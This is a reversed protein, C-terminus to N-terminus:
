PSQVPRLIRFGRYNRGFFTNDSTIRYAFSCGSADIGWSGGRSQRFSGSGAGSYDTLPGTPYSAYWDWCWEFVNGSMDYLGLENPLKGGVPHTKKGSNEYYWAYDDISTGTDHGEGAYNKTYGTRNIEGQMAGARADKNAGMAAWMWEMETPLRYGNAEWDCNADDWDTHFSRPIDGFALNAWDSVGEVTYAPTLGELLSLKNCFAIAHYWNVRQVPNRQKEDDTTGSVTSSDSPDEGMIVKFQKRTIQYKSLSYPKTIESINDQNFDRQFSGAPVRVMKIEECRTVKV